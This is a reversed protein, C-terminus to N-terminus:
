EYGGFRMGGGVSACALIRVEDDADDDDGGGGSSGLLGGGRGM